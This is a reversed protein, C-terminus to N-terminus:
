SGKQALIEKLVRKFSGPLIQRRYRRERITLCRFATMAERKPKATWSQWDPPSSITLSINTHEVEYQDIWHRNRHTSRSIFKCTTKIQQLGRHYDKRYRDIDEQTLFTQRYKIVRQKLHGVIEDITDYDHGDFVFGKKGLVLYRTLGSFEIKALCEGAATLISYPNEETKWPYTVSVGDIPPIRGVSEDLMAALRKNIEIANM